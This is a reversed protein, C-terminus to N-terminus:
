LDIGSHCLEKNCLDEWPPAPRHGGRYVCDIIADVYGAGCEAGLCRAWSALRLKRDASLRGQDFLKKILGSLAKVDGKPFVGGLGSARVASLSGCRDSCIAPVGSMLAESVVAGWGDHDSPLVLCDLSGLEIGVQNMPLRGLMSVRGIGLKVAARQELRTALPGGGIIVLELNHDCLPALADILLDVRKRPIMQGVFGVRFRDSSKRAVKGDQSQLPLFYAFPFSRDRPYGRECVWDPMTAGIALIFDPRTERRRLARAYVFRKIGSMGYRVDITEMVAGWRAKRRSLEARERSLFVDGRIGEMLHVADDPFHCIFNRVDSVNEILRLQLGTTDPVSWGQQARENSMLFNAVYTVCHGTAALAKALGVM